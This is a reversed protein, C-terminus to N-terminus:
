AAVKGRKSTEMQRLVERIQYQRLEPIGDKSWQSLAGKTVKLAACMAARTPWVDPILDDIKM